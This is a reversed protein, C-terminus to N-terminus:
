EWKERSALFENRLIGMMLHDHYQGESYHAQRMTGEQLFGCKLYCGIARENYAYVTLYVRNLNLWGFAWSLMARVADTGYGQGWYAKDGIIIGLM